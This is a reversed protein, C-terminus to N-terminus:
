ADLFVAASVSAQRLLARLTGEAIDGPHHPVTTKRGDGAHRWIEHSGKAQRDFEFGLRRLRRAVEDYSFGALRGM